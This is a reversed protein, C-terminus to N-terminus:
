DLIQGSYSFAICNHIKKTLFWPLDSNKTITSEETCDESLSLCLMYSVSPSQFSLHSTSLHILFVHFFETHLCVYKKKTLGKGERRQLM